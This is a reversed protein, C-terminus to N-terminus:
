VVVFRCCYVINTVAFRSWQTMILVGVSDVNSARTSSVLDVVERVYEDGVREKARKVLEAAYGLGKGRLEGAHMSACGLVFDNGYYGSPLSPNMVRNRINVSFILKVIQNHTLNLAKAWSSWVHASLVEFSTFTFGTLRKLESLRNKDFTILTPTLNERTYRSTFGCVDPVGRLEPHSASYGRSPGRSGPDLLHRSWTPKRKLEILGRALESVSNLFEAGGIGDCLCHNFGAALTAGGDSLWTLQVVLPPAGKLVDAVHLSLFKRWQAPPNPRSRIRFRYFEFDRRHFGRRPGSLSGAPGDRRGSKEGERRTSLLSWPGACLWSSPTQSQLEISDM